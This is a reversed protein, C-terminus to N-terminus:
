RQEVNRRLHRVAREERQRQYAFGKEQLRDAGRDEFKIIKVLLLLCNPFLVNYRKEWVLGYLEDNTLDDYAGSKVSDLMRKILKM